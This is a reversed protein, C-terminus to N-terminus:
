IDYGKRRFHGVLEKENNVRGTFVLVYRQVRLFEAVVGMEEECPYPHVWASKQVQFFDMRKLKDRLIDRAHGDKVPVDFLVFRWKKDWKKQCAVRMDIFQYGRGIEKGKKTLEISITRGDRSRREKIYGRQKMNYLSRRIKQEADEHVELPTGLKKALMRAAIKTLGVAGYPSAATIIVAGGILAYTIMKQTTSTTKVGRSM